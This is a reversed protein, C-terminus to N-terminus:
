FIRRLGALIRKIRNIIPARKIYLLAVVAVCAIYFIYRWRYPDPAPASSKDTTEEAFVANANSKSQEQKTDQEVVGKQEIDAELITQRISKVNGSIKGINVLDLVVAPNGSPNITEVPAEEEGDAPSARADTTGVGAGTTEFVIETIIVKGHETRTTDITTVTEHKESEQVSSTEVVTASTSEQVKRSTACSALAVALILFLFFRKM